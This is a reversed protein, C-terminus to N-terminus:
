SHDTAIIGGVLRRVERKGKKANIFNLGIRVGLDNFLRHIRIRAEPEDSVESLLGIISLAGEVEEKPDFTSPKPLNM